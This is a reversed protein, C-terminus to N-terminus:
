PNVYLHAMKMPVDSLNTPERGGGGGSDHNTTFSVLLDFPSVSLCVSM